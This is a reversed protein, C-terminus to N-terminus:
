TTNRRSFEVVNKELRSKVMPLVLELVSSHIESVPKNGDIIVVEPKEKMKLFINRVPGLRQEFHNPQDKRIKVIRHKATTSDIDLIIVLDPKPAIKLNEYEIFKQDLGRAGQYAINSYYYRDLIVVQGKSLAPNIHERVDEKRDEYFYEFEQRPTLTRGEKSMMSVKRGWEGLTPEKLAVSDYGAASLSERLLRAQTTKGAGDIGEFAVLFGRHESPMPIERISSM